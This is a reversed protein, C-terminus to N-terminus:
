KLQRFLKWAMTGLVAVGALLVSWLIGLRKQESANAKAAVSSTSEVVPRTELAGAQAQELKALEDVAFGPAVQSLDVAASKANDRGFALRYPAQGGALFVLIAPQWRLSLEPQYPLPTQPRVVWEAYHSLPLTLEGSRRQQGDQTIQYFTTQTLAQFVWESPQGLKRAPRERYTGVAAPLVVNPESFRLDIKEVPIAANARYVWDGAQRGLAPRLVLTETVPTDASQQVSEATIDAFEAPEGDRWSLRAYRFRRPSFELRDNALTEATQTNVLWNLEAAGVTDWHKLDDSVELWVQASYAQRGAPAEFRLADVLPGKAETSKGLDLVLGALVQGQAAAAGKDTKTKVSLVTGDPGTKVDMALGELARGQEALLPFRKVSLTQQRTRTQPEPLYLAFPQKNGAADFVRLDALSASRANLYVAQPLRFGVVGQKGTVTLPLAHSYDPPADSPPADEAFALPAVLLVCLLVGSGFSKNKNM